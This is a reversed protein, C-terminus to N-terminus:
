SGVVIGQPLRESKNRSGSPLKTLKKVGTLGSATLFNSLHSTIRRRAAAAFLPNRGAVDPGPVDAKLDALERHRGSSPAGDGLKRRWIDMFQRSPLSDVGGPFQKKVDDPVNGWIARRAWADGKQRGEAPSAMNKWALEDPNAMHTAIGGLGQQHALYFETPSPARGFQKQFQAALDRLLQLGAGLSDGGYQAREAPGM